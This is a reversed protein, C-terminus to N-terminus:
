KITVTGYIEQITLNPDAEPMALEQQVPLAHPALKVRLAYEVQQEPIGYRAALAPIGCGEVFRRVITKHTIPMM